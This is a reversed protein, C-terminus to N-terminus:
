FIYMGGMGVINALGILQQGYLTLSFQGWSEWGSAISQYSASVDGVSKSVNIGKAVGSAVVQKASAGSPTSAQLYLTAFHAVYLHMGLLWTDQWRAQSICANALNVFTQLVVNPTNGIGLPFATAGFQPYFAQFDAVVYAPNDGIAANAATSVIGCIASDEFGYGPDQWNTFM